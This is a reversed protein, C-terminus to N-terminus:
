GRMSSRPSCRRQELNGDLMKVYVSFLGELEDADRYRTSGFDRTAPYKLAVPLTLWDILAYLRRSTM